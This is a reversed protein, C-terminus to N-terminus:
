AHATILDFCYGTSDTGGNSVFPEARPETACWFRQLRGGDTQKSGSKSADRLGTM